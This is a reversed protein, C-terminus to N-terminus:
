NFKVKSTVHIKVESWTITEGDPGTHLDECADNLAALAVQAKWNNLDMVAEITILEGSINVNIPLEESLGNMTIEVLGSSNDRLKITGLINSTNLMKGFFFKKIKGDRLNSQSFVSDTSLSFKLGDLANYATSGSYESEFLVEKFIGSVPIKSSTKYATWSVLTEEAIIRFEKETTKPVNLAALVVMVMLLGIFYISKKM